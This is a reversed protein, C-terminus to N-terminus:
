QWDMGRDRPLVRRLTFIDTDVLDRAHEHWSLYGDHPAAVFKGTIGSAADSVLFAACQGGVSASVAEGSLAAKTKALFADGALAGAELTANHMRTAVFGPAVCNAQINYPGVEVSLTEVFRVLAAKSSAYASYNPFPAAAGGGSFFVLRGGGNAKLPVCSQRAVIYTGFLNVRITQFWEEPDSTTVPGIPGYIGAAHIVGSLPGFTEEAIALARDVDDSSTVDAQAARIHGPFKQNLEAATSELADTGRACVVVNAGRELCSEAAARGIGMSGGTVLVNKGSLM